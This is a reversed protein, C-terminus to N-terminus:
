LETHKHDEEMEMESSGEESGELLPEDLYEGSGDEIDADEETYEHVDEHADEMSFDGEDSAMDESSKIFDEYTLNHEKLYAQLEPDDMDDRKANANEDEQKGCGYEHAITFSNAPFTEALANVISAAIKHNQGNDTGESKSISALFFKTFDEEKHEKSEPEFLSMEVTHENKDGKWTAKLFNNDTVEPEDFSKDTKFVAKIADLLKKYEVKQKITVELGCCSTGCFNEDPQDCDKVKSPSESGCNDIASVIVALVCICLFKM